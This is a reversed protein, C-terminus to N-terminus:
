LYSRGGAADYEYYSNEGGKTWNDMVNSLMGPQHKVGSRREWQSITGPLVKEAERAIITPDFRLAMREFGNLSQLKKQMAAQAGVYGRQQVQAEDYPKDSLVAHGVGAVGMAPFLWPFVHGAGRGVAKLATMGSKEVSGMKSLLGPIRQDIQNNVIAQPDSFASSLMGWASMPKVAGSTYQDTLAASEPSYQAMFQRYLDAHSAYRPDSNTLTMMDGVADRAGTKADEIIRDQNGKRMMRVTNIAPAATFLAGVGPMTLNMALDSGPLNYGAMSAGLGGIGYTTLGKSLLTSKGELLGDKGMKGVTPDHFLRSARNLGGRWGKADPTTNRAVTKWFGNRMLNHAGRFFAGGPAASKVLGDAAELYAFPTM